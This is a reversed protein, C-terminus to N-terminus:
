NEEISFSFDGKIIHGDESMARWSIIFHGTSLPPLTLVFKERFDQSIDNNLINGMKKKSSFLSKFLSDNKISDRENLSVRILKAPAKFSLLLNKPFSKLIAGNKPESFELPSHANLQLPLFMLYLLLVIRLM